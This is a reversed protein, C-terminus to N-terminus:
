ESEGPESAAALLAEIRATMQELTKTAGGKFRGAIRGRSDILFSTPLTGIGGWLRGQKEGGLIVPYEVGAEELFIAVPAPDQQDVNVGIIRLRSEPYRESLKQLYPM